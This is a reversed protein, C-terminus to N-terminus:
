LVVRGCGGRVGRPFGRVGRGDVPGDHGHGGGVVACDPPPAFATYPSRIEQPALLKGDILAVLLAVGKSVCEQLPHAVCPFRDTSPLGRSDTHTIVVVDPCPSRHLHAPVADNGCVFATADSQSVLDPVTVDLVTNRATLTLGSDALAERVGQIRRAYIRQHGPSCAFGIRRHGREILTRAALRGGQVDDATSLCAAAPDAPYELVHVVPKDWSAIADECDPDRELDKDVLLLGDVLGLESLQDHAPTGTRSWGTLFSAHYGHELATGLIGAFIEAAFSSRGAQTYLAPDAALVGISHSRGTRLARAM